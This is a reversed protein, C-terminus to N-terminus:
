YNFMFRGVIILAIAFISHKQIQVQSFSLISFGLMGISYM